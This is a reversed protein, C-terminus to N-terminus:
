AIHGGDKERTPPIRGLLSEEQSEARGRCAPCLQMRAALASDKGELKSRVRELMARSGVVAGCKTCLAFGDEFLVVPAADKQTTGNSLSLALRELKLCQEPCVELCRGCADCSAQRFVLKVAEKGAITLAGTACDRACLGCASCRTSDIRLGPSSALADFPLLRQFLERRSIEGGPRAQGEEPKDRRMEESM